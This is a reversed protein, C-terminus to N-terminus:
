RRWSRDSARRQRAGRGAARRPAGPAERVESLDALDSINVSTVFVGRRPYVEVLKAQELMRVAERIPTRGVGLEAM